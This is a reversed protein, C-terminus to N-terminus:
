TSDSLMSSSARTSQHSHVTSDFGQSRYEVPVTDLDSLATQAVRQPMISCNWDENWVCYVCDQNCACQQRNAAACVNNSGMRM